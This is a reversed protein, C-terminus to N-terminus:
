NPPSLLIKSYQDLSHDQLADTLTYFWKNRVIISATWGKAKLMLCNSWWRRFHSYHKCTCFEGNMRDRLTVACRRLLLMIQTISWNNKIRSHMSVIEYLFFSFTNINCVHILSSWWHDILLVMLTLDLSIVKYLETYLVSRKM